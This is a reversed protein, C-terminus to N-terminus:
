SSPEVSLHLDNCEFSIHGDPAGVFDIRVHYRGLPLGTVTLEYISPLGQFQEFRIDIVLESVFNASLRRSQPGPELREATDVPPYWTLLFSVDEGGKEWAIANLESDHFSLSGIIHGRYESM